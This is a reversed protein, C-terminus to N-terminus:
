TIDDCLQQAVMVLNVLLLLHLDKIRKNMGPVGSRNYPHMSRHDENRAM